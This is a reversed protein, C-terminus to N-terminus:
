NNKLKKLIDWRPDTFKEEEINKSKHEEIKKLMEVDCRSNGDADDPHIRQIPLSLIIYEYFLQKLDLEKEDQSIVIVDPDEDNAENGYKVLLRNECYIPLGFIDLCRDCPVDVVGEIIIMLDIHTAMKDAEVSVTLVGSKVESEDFLDFFKKDIEFKFSSTGVQLDSIPISFM